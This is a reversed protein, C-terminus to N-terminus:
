FLLNIEINLFYIYQNKKEQINYFLIQMNYGNWEFKNFNVNEQKCAFM